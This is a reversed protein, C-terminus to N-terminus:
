LAAIPNSNSLASPSSKKDEEAALHCLVPFYDASTM